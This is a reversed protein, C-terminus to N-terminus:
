LKEVDQFLVFLLLKTIEPWFYAHCIATNGSADTANVDAGTDLAAKVAALDGQKCANILDESSNAFSLLCLCALVVIFFCKKSKM